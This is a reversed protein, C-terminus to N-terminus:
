EDAHGAHGASRVPLLQMIVHRDPKRHTDEKIARAQQMAEIRKNFLKKGRPGRLSEPFEPRESLVSHATRSGTRAAPVVVGAAVCGRLAALISNEEDTRQMERDFETPPALVHGVMLHAAADWAFAIRLGTQGHNSKQLEFILGGDDSDPSAPRLYWRARFANHWATSGSYGESTDGGSAATTKNVHGILIVAGRTPILGVVANVFRKVEARANENGGYTDAIGDLVLVESGYQQVRRRLIDYARTLVNGTRSEPAVLLSDHGVLDIVVLWGSLSAMDIGLYNCICWLRWHVVDARDECSLLLVRRRQVPLGCFPIGAAMCVARLDEIQSKGAGGHGFVGTAYGEPVGVMIHAPELPERRSLEKLDLPEPWDSAAAEAHWGNKRALYPLTRLTRLARDRNKNFGEWKQRTEATGQYKASAASWKDWAEFADDGYAHKLAQGVNIWDDYDDSPIYTLWDRATDLPVDLSPHLPIDALESVADATIAPPHWTSEPTTYDRGAKWAYRKGSVHMSPAVVIQHKDPYRYDIGPLKPLQTGPAVRVIFHFGGGGTYQMPTDPPLNLASADGGNRPDVDVGVTGPELMMGINSNPYQALLKTLQKADSTATKAWNNFRPHKGPGPCAKGKHCTCAKTRPDIGHLLM